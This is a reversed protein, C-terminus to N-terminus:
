LASLKVQISRKDWEKLGLKTAHAFYCSMFDTTKNIDFNNSFNVLDKVREHYAASGPRWLLALPNAVGLIDNDLYLDLAENCPCSFGLQHLQSLLKGLSSPTAESLISLRNGRPKHCIMFIRNDNKIHLFKVATLSDIGSSRLLKMREDLITAPHKKGFIRPRGSFSIAILGSSLQLIELPPAISSNYKNGTNVEPARVSYSTAGETLASLTQQSLKEIATRQWVYPSEPKGGPQTKFRKHMWLYQSPAKRIEIELLKNILTADKIDDGTPYTDPIATFSIIYTNTVTRRHSVIFVPAKSLKVFRGTATITAAPVGFFPAQVSHLPGYDQDPAYWLVKGAKLHKLYQRLDERNLVANCNRTRGHFMFYDFVPNNHPRYTVGFPIHQSLLNACFDLTSYHGGILLLGRGEDIAAKVDAEGEMTLLHSFHQPPRVWGAITEMFGIGNDQFTKKVLSQQEHPTLEPFCLQINIETFYRRQRALHYTLNGLSKGSALRLRLPLWALLILFGIGLWTLWYRPQLLAISLKKSEQRM